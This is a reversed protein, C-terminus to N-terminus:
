TTLESAKITEGSRFRWRGHLALGSASLIDREALWALLACLLLSVSGLVSMRRGLEVAPLLGDHTVSFAVQGAPIDLKALGTNVDLSVRRPTGGRTVEDPFYFEHLLLIGPAPLFGRLALSGDAGATVHLGDPLAPVAQLASGPALRETQSDVHWGAARAGAPIYEAVNNRKEAYAPLMRQARPVYVPVRTLLGSPFHHYKPADTLSVYGGLAVVMLQAVIVGSVLSLVKWQRRRNSGAWGAALAGTIALGCPFLRWPFQIIRLSHIMYWFPRAVGTMALLVVALCIALVRQRPDRERGAVGRTRFYAVLVAACLLWTAYLWLDLDYFGWVRFRIYTFLFNNWMDIYFNNTWAAASITNQMALAPLWSAAALLLGLGLGIFNILVAWMNRWVLVYLLTVGFALVVQLPHIVALTAYLLALVPVARAARRREALVADLALFLLPVFATAATEAFGIRTVPNFSMAFPLAVFALAGGEAARGKSYRLLWARCTFFALVRFVFFGAVLAGVPGLHLALGLGAALLFPLRGYFYFGPSGFGNNAAPLWHPLWVGGRLAAMYGKTMELAFNGDLCSGSGIVPIGFVFPGAVSLVVLFAVLAPWWFGGPRTGTHEATM